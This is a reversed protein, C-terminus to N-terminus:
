KSAYFGGEIRLTILDAFETNNELSLREIVLPVPLHETAELYQGLDTLSGALTLSVGKFLYDKKEKFDSMSFKVLLLGKDQAAQLLSDSALVTTNKDGIWKMQAAQSKKDKGETDAVPLSPKSLQEKEALSKDLEEQAASLAKNSPM